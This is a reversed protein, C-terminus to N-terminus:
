RNLIAKALETAIFDQEKDTLYPHMPLSMVEESIRDGIPLPVNLGFVPQKNVPIPYHVATPIGVEKLRSQVLSRNPVRVTYQAYASENFEEVFPTTTIGLANLKQTYREAIERRLDLEQEFIDFKALLVAAQITDLRSNLGVRTHCYRREQGHNAIQRLKLGLEDDNTFIAGGDGYCGLPKSPFFSTCGIRSLGCSRRGHHTAGFSQAGDEVVPIGYKSAIANISKFDACQGYLSVPVILKTRPTIAKELLRPNLNYTKEDIDVFVPTAGLLAVVEGTAIFTFASTIVEDGPKIDLAMLAIQLAETGNACGICHKVGVFNALKEELESVEPGKIFHGHNLVTEIRKALNEKIKERQRNLDCFEM